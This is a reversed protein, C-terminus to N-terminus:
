AGKEAKKPKKFPKIESYIWKGMAKKVEVLVTKGIMNEIETVPMQFKDEFKDYQKKQKIPNIFWEKRAEVYDAYQMKSEYLNGEYEFQIAIKKGDDFANTVETEFVQGLMDEEFKTVMQVEFLSNFNDYCYVDKREGIAEALRDFPLGFFEEAWEECKQAKEADDVFKKTDKDYVQKNFNVERIEGREEHLFVLTVKKNDEFITDVLELQELIENTM